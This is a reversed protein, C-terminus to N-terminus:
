GPFVKKLEIFSLYSHIAKKSGLTLGKETLTACSAALGTRLLEELGSNNKKDYLSGIAGVMSDGAGVTSYIKVKPIKGFWAEKQSVLLAGGEVSSICILPVEQLLKRAEKLVARLTKPRSAILGQFETLNPKIFDPRAKIVTRLIEGPMDVFCTLGRRKVMAVLKRIEVASVGPPLSGGFFVVANLPLKSIKEQLNKLEEKRIKPGPFSLRTQQHTHCNSVTLNMRTRGHISVFDQRVKERSILESIESGSAGGLFGSLTVQSGLRSAIIGANIGNGGPLHNEDFVYSKENPILNEVFGSVDLAPNFTVSYIVFFRWLEDYKPFLTSFLHERASSFM